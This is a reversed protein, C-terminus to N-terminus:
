GHTKWNPHLNPCTRMKPPLVVMVMHTVMGLSSLVVDVPLYELLVVQQKFKYYMFYFSQWIKNETTDNWLYKHNQTSKWWSNTYNFLSIEELIESNYYWELSRPINVSARKFSESVESELLKWSLLTWLGSGAYISFTNFAQVDLVTSKFFSPHSLYQLM